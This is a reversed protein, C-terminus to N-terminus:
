AVLTDLAELLANHYARLREVREIERLRAEARPDALEEIRAEWAGEEWPPKGSRVAGRAKRSHLRPPEAELLMESAEAAADMAVGLAPWKSRPVLSQVRDLYRWIQEFQCRVAVMMPYPYHSALAHAATTPESHLWQVLRAYAALGGGGGDGALLAVGRTLARRVLRGPRLRPEVWGEVLYAARIADIHEPWIIDTALLRDVLPDRVTSGLFDARDVHFKHILGWYWNRRRLAGVTLWGGCVVSPRYNRLGARVITFLRTYGGTETVQPIMRPMLGLDALGDQLLEHSACLGMGPHAPDADVAFCDGTSAAVEDPHRRSGYLQLAATIVPTLTTFVDESQQMVPIHELSIEVVPKDRKFPNFV